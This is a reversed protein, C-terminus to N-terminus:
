NIQVPTGPLWNRNVTGVLWDISSNALRVCGHSLSSGLPDLLSAGGRGHIGVTGDGGDFRQLVDSHATLELVWSGLFFNPHWPVAWAIAFLGTPTPTSPKGDVITLTRVPRGSRFLTLTHQATSVEIRWKTQRVTVLSANIWGAADNPRWPLRVRLWCEGDSARANDLVLLWPASQPGVWTTSHPHEGPLRDYVKVPVDLGVKWASSNTPGGVPEGGLVSQCASNGATAAGSAPAAGAVPAVAGAVLLAGAVILARWGSWM